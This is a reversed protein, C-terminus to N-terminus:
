RELGRDNEVAINLENQEQVPTDKSTYRDLYDHVQEHIIESDRTTNTVEVPVTIHEQLQKAADDIVQQYSATDNITTTLKEGYRSALEDYAAEVIQTAIEVTAYVVGNMLQAFPSDDLQNLTEWVEDSVHSLDIPEYDTNVENFGTHADQMADQIHNDLTQVAEEILAKTSTEREPFAGTEIANSQYRELYDITM